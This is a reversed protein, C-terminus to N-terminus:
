TFNILLQEIDNLFTDCNTKKCKVHVKNAGIPGSIVLNSNEVYMLGAQTFHVLEKFGNVKFTEILSYDIPRDLRFVIQMKGCCGQILYRDIKM